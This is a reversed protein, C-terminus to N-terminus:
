HLLEDAQQGRGAGDQQGARQVGPHLGRDPWQPDCLHVQPCM